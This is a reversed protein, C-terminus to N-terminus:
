SQVPPAYVESSILVMVKRSFSSATRSLWGFIVL